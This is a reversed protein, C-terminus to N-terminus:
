IESKLILDLFNGGRKRESSSVKIRTAADYTQKMERLIMDDTFLKIKQLIHSFLM